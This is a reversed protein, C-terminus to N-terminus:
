PSCRGQNEYTCDVPCADCFACDILVEYLAVGIPYQSVCGNACTEDVCQDLCVM